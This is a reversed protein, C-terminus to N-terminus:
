AIYDRMKEFAEIIFEEDMKKRRKPDDDFSTPINLITKKENHAKMLEEVKAGWDSIKRDVISIQTHMNEELDSLDYRVRTNM